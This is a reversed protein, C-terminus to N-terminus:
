ETEPTSATTIGLDAAIAEAEVLRQELQPLMERAFTGLSSEDSAFGEHYAIARRHAFVQGSIYLEDFEAGQRGEMQNILGLQEGDPSPEAIELGDAEGTARLGDQAQSAMAVSEEAFARIEPSESRELALEGSRLLFANGAASTSLFEMPTAIGSQELQTEPITPVATESPDQALAPTALLFLAATLARAPSHKM